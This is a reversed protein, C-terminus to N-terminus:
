CLDEPNTSSFEWKNHYYARHSQKSTSQWATAPPMRCYVAQNKLQNGYCFATIIERSLTKADSFVTPIKGGDFPDPDASM